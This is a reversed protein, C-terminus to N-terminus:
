LYYLTIVIIEKSEIVYVIELIKQNFKKNVIIRNRDGYTTRDPRALVQAIESKRVKREKIRKKAHSSLRFRM